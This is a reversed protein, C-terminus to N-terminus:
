ADVIRVEVDRAFGDEEDLRIRFVGGEETVGDLQGALHWNPFKSAMLATVFNILRSVDAGTSSGDASSYVELGTRDATIDLDVFTLYREPDVIALTDNWEPHRRVDAQLIQQLAFIQEVTLEQAFKLVGSYSSNYSM